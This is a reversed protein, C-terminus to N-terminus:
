RLSQVLMLVIFLPCIFRVYVPWIRWFFSKAMQPNQARLEVLASNRFLVWGAFLCLALGLLPQSYRTTLAIVADFLLEM